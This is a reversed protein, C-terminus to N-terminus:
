LFGKNLHLKNYVDNIDKFNIHLDQNIADAPVIVVQFVQNLTFSSDLTEPADSEILIDVDNATYNFRYQVFGDDIGDQNDDFYITATPLPEWVNVGNDVAELRYVLVVDGSVLPSVLTYNIGFNNEPTFNVNSVLYNAGITDLDDDDNSCSATFLGLCILFIGIKKM